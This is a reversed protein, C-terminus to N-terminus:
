AADAGFLDGLLRQVPTWRFDLRQIGAAGAWAARMTPNHFRSRGRAGKLRQERQRVLARAESDDEVHGRTAVVRETWRALFAWTQATVAHGPTACLEELRRLDWSVARDLRLAGARWRELDARRAAAIEELRARGEAPAPLESLSLNYLQAAGHAIESVLRAHGLLERTASPLEEFSPIAWPYRGRELEDRRTLWALMTAGHREHIREVLFTRETPTIRFDLRDPFGGPPRPMAPHWISAASDVIAEGDDTRRVRGRRALFRDVERHYVGQSVDVRRLGLAGLGSWYVSSPLRKIRQGAVRGFVGDADGQELLPRILKRELAAVERAFHPSRVGLAEVHQYCWPVILFYRLRTQITSTAPFLRESISDRIGGFGLEDRAEAQRLAALIRNVRDSEDPDHVIWTLTSPM